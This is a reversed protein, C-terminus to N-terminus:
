VITEGNQQNKHGDRQQEENALDSPLDVGSPVKGPYNTTGGDSGVLDKDVLVMSRLECNSFFKCMESKMSPHCDDGFQQLTHFLFASHTVIAIEKEKRTWLWKLFRMGRASLEDNSERVDPTWMVDDDTEVLSFDIAPFLNKYESISRRKDATNVGLRERCLEHAIFPPCNLSSVAAHEGKVNEVMLPTGTSSKTHIDGGFVVTATQMTRLLPSTIVLEIRNLLGCANVHKRLNEVQEWGLPSLCADFLKPSRKVKEEFETNHIGEAHRVLHLIKCRHLPYLCPAPAADM